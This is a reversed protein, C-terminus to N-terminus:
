TFGLDDYWHRAPVLIHVLGESRSDPGLEHDVHLRMPANCCACEAAIAVVENVLVPIGLMDWACNAYWGTRSSTVRYSTTGAAFPGAMWIEGSEPDPMLTKGIRLGALLARAEDESRQLHAGIAALSPARGTRFLEDYVFARLQHATM